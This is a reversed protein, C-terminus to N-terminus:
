LPQAGIESSVTFDFSGAMVNVHTLVCQVRRGDQLVLTCGDALELDRAGTVVQMHGRTSKVGPVYETREFTQAKLYKQTVEISYMVTAISRDEILVQGQGSLREEGM